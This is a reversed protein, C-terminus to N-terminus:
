KKKRGRKRAPVPKKPAPVPCDGVVEDFSPPQKIKALQELVEPPLEVEAPKPKKPTVETVELEGIDPNEAKLRIITDMLDAYSKSDKPDKVKGFPTLKVEREPKETRMIPPIEVGKEDRLKKMTEMLADYAEPKKEESSNVPLAVDTPKNLSVAPLATEAAAKEPVAEAANKESSAAPLAVAAKEPAAEAGNKESSAAPSAVAAKEPAAEAAADDATVAGSEAAERLAKEEKLKNITNQLAVYSPNDPRLAFENDNGSETSEFSPTTRVKYFVFMATLMILMGLFFAIPFGYECSVLMYPVAKIALGRESMGEFEPRGALYEYYASKMEPDIATFMGNVPLPAGTKPTNDIVSTVTVEVTEESDNEPVTTEAPEDDTQGDDTQGDDDQGDDDQGDDTETTAKDTGIVYSVIEVEHPTALYYSCKAMLDLEKTLRDSEIAPTRPVPMVYYFPESYEGGMVAYYDTNDASYFCGVSSTVEGGAFIGDTVQYSRTEAIPYFKSFRYYFDEWGVFILILSVITASAMFIAQKWSENLIKM